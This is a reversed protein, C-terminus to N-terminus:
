HKFLRAVQAETGSLRKVDGAARSDAGGAVKKKDDFLEPLNKQLETLSDGFGLLGGEDDLDFKTADMLGYVREVDKVGKNALERKALLEVVRNKYRAIGDDGELAAIRDSLKKNDAEMASVQERYKKADNKARDLAELVAKPDRIDEDAASQNNTNEVTDEVKQDETM